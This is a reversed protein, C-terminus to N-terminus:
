IIKSLNYTNKRMIKIKSFIINESKRYSSLNTKRAIPLKRHVYKKVIEEMPVNRYTLKKILFYLPVNGNVFKKFKPLPYFLRLQTITVLRIINM